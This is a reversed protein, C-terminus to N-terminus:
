RIELFIHMIEDGEVIFSEEQFIANRKLHNEVTQLCPFGLIGVSKAYLIDLRIELFIHMIADGKVVFQEEQFM